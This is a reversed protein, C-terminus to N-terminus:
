TQAIRKKSFRLGAFGILAAFMLPLSAPLPVAASVASSYTFCNSGCESNGTAPTPGFQWASSGGDAFSAIDPVSAIEDFVNSFWKTGSFSGPILENLSFLGDSDIDSFSLSFSSWGMTHSTAQLDFVTTAWVPQSLGGILVSVAVISTLKM